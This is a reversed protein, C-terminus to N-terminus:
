AALAALYKTVRALLSEPFKAKTVCIDGNFDGSIRVPELGLRDGDLWIGLGFFGSEDPFGEEDEMNDEDKAIESETAVYPNGDIFQADYQIMGLHLQIALREGEQLRTMPDTEASEPNEIPMGGYEGDEDYGTLMELPTYEESESATLRSHDAILTALSKLPLHTPIM